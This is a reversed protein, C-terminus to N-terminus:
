KITGIFDALLAPIRSHKRDKPRFARARGIADELRTIDYVGILYGDREMARVIEEQRDTSENLEPHRPVAVIPKDYLLADRISGYGGQAVIVEARSIMEMLVSREVFREYRCHRPEYTTNGLQIFVDWGNRAALADIPKVLRDFSYPNTGTLVVILAASWRVEGKSLRQAAAGV